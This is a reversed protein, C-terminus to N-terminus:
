KATFGVKCIRCWNLKNIPYNKWTWYLSLCENPNPCHELPGLLGHWMYGCENCVNHAIYIDM